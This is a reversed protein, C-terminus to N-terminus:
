GRQWNRFTFGVADLAANLVPWANKALNANIGRPRNIYTEILKVAKKNMHMIATMHLSSIETHTPAASVKTRCTGSVGKTQGWRTSRKGKYNNVRKSM